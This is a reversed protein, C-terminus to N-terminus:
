TTVRNWVSQLIRGYDLGGLIDEIMTYMRLFNQLLEM